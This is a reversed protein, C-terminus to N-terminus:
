REYGDCAVRPQPPYRPYRADTRSLECLYFVSGKASEVRRVHACRPCLGSPDAPRAREAGRDRARDGGEESV